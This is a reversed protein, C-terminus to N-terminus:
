FCYWVKRSKMGVQCSREFEEKDIGGDETKAVNESQFKSDGALRTTVFSESNEGDIANDASLVGSRSITGTKLFKGIRDFINSGSDDAVTSDCKVATDSESVKEFCGFINSSSSAM